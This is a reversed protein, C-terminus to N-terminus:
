EAGRFRLPEYREWCSHSTPSYKSGSDIFVAIGEDKRAAAIAVTHALSTLPAREPGHLLSLQEPLLLSGLLSDLPKPTLPIIAQMKVDFSDLPTRM